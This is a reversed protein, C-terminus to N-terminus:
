TFKKCDDLVFLPEGKYEYKSIEYHSFSKQFDNTCRIGNRLWRRMSNEILFFSNM